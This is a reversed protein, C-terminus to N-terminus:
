RPRLLRWPRSWLLFALAPIGLMAPWAATIAFTLSEGPDHELAFPWPRYSWGGTGGAAAFGAQYARLLLLGALQLAALAVLAAYVGARLKVRGGDAELYDRALSRLSGLRRLAEDEGLEAAADALNARLERRIQRRRSRPVRGELRWDLHRLAAEIKVNM